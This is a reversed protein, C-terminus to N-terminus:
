CDTALIVYPSDAITIRKNTIKRGGTQEISGLVDLDGFITDASAPACSLFLVVFVLFLKKMIGAGSNQFNCEGPARRAM